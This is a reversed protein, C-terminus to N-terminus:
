GPSTILQLVGGAEKHAYTNIEDVLDATVHYANLTWLKQSRGAIRVGFLRGYMTESPRRELLTDFGASENVRSPDYTMISRVHRLYEGLDRVLAESIHGERFNMQLRGPLFDAVFLRGDRLTPLILTEITYTYM